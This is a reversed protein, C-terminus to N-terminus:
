TPREKDLDLRQEDFEPRPFTKSGLVSWLLLSIMTALRAKKQWVCFCRRM